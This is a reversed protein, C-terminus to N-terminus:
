TSRESDTIDNERLEWLNQDDFAPHTWDSPRGRNAEEGTLEDFVNGAAASLTYLADDYEWRVEHTEPTEEVVTCKWFSEPLEDIRRDLTENDVTTGNRLRRRNFELQDRPRLIGRDLLIEVTREPHAEVEGSSGTLTALALRLDNMDFKGIQKTEPDFLRDGADGLISQIRGAQGFYYEELLPLIEYRWADVLLQVTEDPDDEAACHWLYSHGIQKGKGLDGEELIHENIRELALISLALLVRDLSPGTEATEAVLDRDDFEHQEYLAEYDPPFHFFRFRRRLAADVLAISRDATNMTGIIYLNPPITFTNGSHALNVKLENEGHLRKDIELQTITEGFIQALNGRNIEDILLVFRPSDEGEPTSDYADRAAESVQKFVGPEVKYEVNGDETATASLGELFDEYSFSPHFTVARFQEVGDASPGEDIWWDAFRRATYTKGTGPPGYFVVQGNQQLQRAIDEARDVVPDEPPTTELANLRRYEPEIDRLKSIIRDISLESRDGVSDLDRIDEWDGTKLDDGVHLGYRVRDPRFGLFLQYEATHSEKRGPHIALWSYTNLQNRPEVFNVTHCEWHDLDLEDALYRGTANLYANIRPKFFDFYLQGLVTFDNYGQMINTDHSATEQDRIDEYVEVPIEGDANFSELVQWRIGNIKEDNTYQRRKVALYESPLNRIANLFGQLDGGSEPQFDRLQRSFLWLHDIRFEAIDANTEHSSLVRAFRRVDTPSADVSYQDALNGALETSIHEFLERKEDRQLNRLSDVAPSNLSEERAPGWDCFHEVLASLANEDYEESMEADRGSIRQYARHVASTDFFYEGIRLTSYM